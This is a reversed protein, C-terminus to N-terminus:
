QLMKPYIFFELIMNEKKLGGWSKMDGELLAVSCTPVRKLKKGSLYEILEHIGPNHGIIFLTDLADDVESIVHLIDEKSAEYLRDDYLLKTKNVSQMIWAATAKTRKASSSLILKPTIHKALEKGMFLADEKGRESLPRSIDKINLDDKDSKAHRILYLRKM